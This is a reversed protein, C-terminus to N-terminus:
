DPPLDPDLTGRILTVWAMAIRLLMLYETRPITITDCCEATTPM